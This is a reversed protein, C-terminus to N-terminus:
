LYELARALFKPDYVARMEPALLDPIAKLLARAINEHRHKTGKKLVIVLENRELDVKTKDEDGM